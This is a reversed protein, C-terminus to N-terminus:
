KEREREEEKKAHARSLLQTVLVLFTERERERARELSTSLSKVSIFVFLVFRVMDYTDRSNGEQGPSDRERDSKNVLRTKRNVLEDNLASVVSLWGNIIYSVTLISRM